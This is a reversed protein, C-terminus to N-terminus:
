RGDFYGMDEWDDYKHQEHYSRAFEPDSRLREHFARADRRELVGVVIGIIGLATAFILWFVLLGTNVIVESELAALHITTVFPRM